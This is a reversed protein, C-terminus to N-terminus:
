RVTLDLALRFEAVANDLNRALAKAEQTVRLAIKDLCRVINEHRRLDHAAKTQTVAHPNVALGAASIAARLKGPQIL